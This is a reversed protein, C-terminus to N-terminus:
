SCIKFESFLFTDSDGGGGGEGRQAVHEPSACFKQARAATALCEGGGGGGGLLCGPAAGSKAYEVEM